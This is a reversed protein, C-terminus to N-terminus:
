WGRTMVWEVIDRIRVENAVRGPSYGWTCYRFCYRGSENDRCLWIGGQKGLLFGYVTHTFKQLHCTQYALTVRTRRAPPHPGQVRKRPGPLVGRYNRTTGPSLGPHGLPDRCYGHKPPCNWDHRHRGLHNSHTCPLPKMTLPLPTM